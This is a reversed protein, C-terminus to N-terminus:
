KTLVVLYMKMYVILYFYIVQGLNNMVWFWSWLGHGMVWSGYANIDKVDHMVDCHTFGHGMVWSGVDM